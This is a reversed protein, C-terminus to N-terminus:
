TEEGEGARVTEWAEVAQEVTPVYPTYRVEGNVRGRGRYTRSGDARDRREINRPLDEEPEAKEGGNAPTRAAKQPAEDPKLLDRLAAAVERRLDGAEREQRQETEADVLLHAPAHEEGPQALQRAEHEARALRGPDHGSINKHHLRKQRTLERPWDCHPCPTDAEDAWVLHEVSMEVKEPDVGFEVNARGQARDRYTYETVRHIARVPVQRHGPCVQDTCAALADVEQETVRPPTHHRASPKAQQRQLRDLQERLTALDEVTAM